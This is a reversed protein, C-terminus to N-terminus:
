FLTAGRGSGSSSITAKGIISTPDTTMNILYKAKGSGDKSNFNKITQETQAITNAAGAMNYKRMTDLAQNKVTNWSFKVDGNMYAKLISTIDSLVQSGSSSYRTQMFNAVNKQISHNVMYRLELPSTSPKEKEEGTFKSKTWDWLKGILSGSAVSNIMSQDNADIILDNTIGEYKFSVTIDNYGFDGMANSGWDISTIVPNEITYVTVKNMYYECFSIRDILRFNSDITLGFSNLNGYYTGNVTSGNGNKYGYANQWHCNDIQKEWTNADKCFFDNCIFKLYAIFFQQVPSEKVDYFSIKIDKYKIGTYVFRKRNYENFETADLSSVGPKDYSKVMKSLEFSLKNFMDKTPIFDVYGAASNEKNSEKQNGIFKKVKNLYGNIANPAEQGFQGKAANQYASLIKSKTQQDISTVTQYGGTDLGGNKELLTQIFLNKYQIRKELAPNLHFYVFYLSKPKPLNPTIAQSSFTKQAKTLTPEPITNSGMPTDFMYQDASKEKNIGPMFSGNGATSGSVGTILNSIVGM